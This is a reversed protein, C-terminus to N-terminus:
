ILGEIITREKIYDKNEKNELESNDENSSSEQVKAQNSNSISDANETIVDEQAKALHSNLIVILFSCILFKLIKKHEM